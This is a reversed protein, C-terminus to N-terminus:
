TQNIVQFTKLFAFVFTIKEYLLFYALPLLQIKNGNPPPNLKWSFNYFM